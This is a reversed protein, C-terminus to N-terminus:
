LGSHLLVVLLFCVGVIKQLFKLNISQQKLALEVQGKVPFNISNARTLFLSVRLGVLIHVSVARGVYQKTSICSSIGVSLM